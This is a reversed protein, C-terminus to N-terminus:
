YSDKWARIAAFVAVPDALARGTHREAAQRVSDRDARLFPNFELEEALTSPLTPEDAERRQAAWALRAAVAQNDPEVAAAFMLNGHTYEHGCYLRTGGPLARLRELSAWMQAATGEFLRGCGASFLTDGTLVLGAGYYAAQGRTHGPVSLVQLEVEIGPVDIVDGDNLPHTLGVIGDDAPGYVPVNFRAKLPAAGDCHDHHHHTILIAALELGASALRDIVPQADGPDVVAVRTSEGRLVWIYNDRLAPIASATLM